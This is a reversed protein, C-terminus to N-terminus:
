TNIITVNGITMTFHNNDLRSRWQKWHQLGEKSAVKLPGRLLCIAQCREHTSPSYITHCLMADCLM